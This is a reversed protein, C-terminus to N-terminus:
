ATPEVPPPGNGWVQVQHGGKEGSWLLTKCISGSTSRSHHWLGKWVQSNRFLDERESIFRFVSRSAVLILKRKARSFAVTSRGPELFFEAVKTLYAPDSETASIVMIEREGGQYRDVVDVSSLRREPDGPDSLTLEPLAEALSARQRRHPVIVGLGTRADWGLGDPGIVARAIPVILDREFDNRDQSGAEDHVVVTLPHDPSLAAALFDDQWARSPLEKTEKSYFPIGDAAYVERRLFKAIDRHLRFSRDFQIQPKQRGLLAQYLSEYVPFAQFRCRRERAWDHSIIPSLQRPDGIAILQGGAGLRCAAMLAQPISLQSAEDLVVLNAVLRNHIDARGLKEIAYPTGAAVALTAGLLTQVAEPGNAGLGADQMLPIVGPSVPGRPALRFLPLDLLRDNFFEKWLTPDAARMARLRDCAKLVGELVVDTAAHTHCSLLARFHGQTALASQARALVAFGTAFSKGTGPPGQVLLIPDAAYGGVYREQPPELPEFLGVEAFRALGKAFRALGEAFRNQVAAADPTLDLPTLTVPPVAYLRDYLSNSTHGGPGAALAWASLTQMAQAQQYGSRSDPSPDLTYVGGEEFALPESRFLFGAPHNGGHRTAVTLRLRAATVAGTADREVTRGTIRAGLGARLAEASVWTSPEGRSSIVIEEDLFNALALCGTLDADTGQVTVRLAVPLDKLDLQVEAQQAQTLLPTLGPHRRQFADEYEARLRSRRGNEEHRDRSGPDQDQLHYTALLTEGAAVRGEPPGPRALTWDALRAKQELLVFESLDQIPLSPPPILAVDGLAVPTRGARDRELFGAAIHALAELRRSAFSRLNDATAKRFSAFFDKSGPEPGPLAGWAQYAYELPPQSDIRVYRPSGLRGDAEDFDDFLRTRFIEPFDEPTRWDFGTWRAVASLSPCTLPIIKLRRVENRLFSVLPPDAAAAETLFRYGAQILAGGDQSSHSSRGLADLLVRRTYDNWFVLHIPATPRGRDDAMAVQLVAGFLDSVWSTLLSAEAAPTDPPGGALRVVTRTGQPGTVRAAALYLRDLLYDHQADLYIEILHANGAATRDPLTSTGGGPLDSPWTPIGERVARARSALEDLRPVAAVSPPTAPQRGGAADPAGRGALAQVTDIGARRLSSKTREDIFPILSLDDRAVAAKICFENYRCGDCKYTLSFELGDFDAAAIRDVVADPSAVLEYVERAYPGADFVELLGSSVGLHEKCARMHEAMHEEPSPSPRYLVGLDTRAATLGAAALLGKVMELYFAVQIRHEVKAHTSSKIDAILVDFRGDALRDLRVIDADGRVRWRGLMATLRPQLCVLTEGPRLATLRVTVDDTNDDAGNTDAPARRYIVTPFAAVIEEECRAEFDLGSRTLMPTIKQSGVGFDRLFASGHTHEHLRLRLFRPCQELRVFQAIDTPSLSGGELPPLLPIAASHSEPM